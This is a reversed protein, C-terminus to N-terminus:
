EESPAPLALSAEQVIVRSPEQSVMRLLENMDTLLGADVRVATVNVNTQKAGYLAPRRRELDMRAFRCVERAASVRVADGSNRAAELEDDADSVRAVLMETVMEQYKEGGLEALM